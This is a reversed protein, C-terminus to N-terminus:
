SNCAYCMEDEQFLVACPLADRLSLAQGRDDFPRGPRTARVALHVFDALTEEPAVTAYECDAPFPPLPGSKIREGVEPLARKKRM